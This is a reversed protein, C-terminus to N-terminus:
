AMEFAAAFFAWFGEVELMTIDGKKHPVTCDVDSDGEQAVGLLLGLIGVNIEILFAVVAFACEKLGDKALNPLPGPKVASIHEDNSTSPRRLLLQEKQGIHIEQADNRGIGENNSLAYDPKALSGDVMDMGFDLFGYNHKATGQHHTYHLARLDHFYVYREFWHGEIHLAHHLWNSWSGVCAYSLVAVSLDHWRNIAGVTWLIIINLLMGGYLPGDHCFSSWATRGEKDNKYVKSLFRRPPYVRWHHYMHVKYAPYLLWRQHAMWHWAHFVVLGMLYLMPMLWLPSGVVVHSALGRLAVLLWMSMM